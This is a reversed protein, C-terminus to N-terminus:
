FWCICDFVGQSNCSNGYGPSFRELIKLSRQPDQHLDKHPDEDHDKFIRALIKLSGGADWLRPLRTWSCIFLSRTLGYKFPSNFTISSLRLIRCSFFGVSSQSWSHMSLGFDVYGVWMSEHVDYTIVDWNCYWNVLRSWLKYSHRSM